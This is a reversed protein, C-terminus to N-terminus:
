YTHILVTVSPFEKAQPRPLDVFLWGSTTAIKKPGHSISALIYLPIITM